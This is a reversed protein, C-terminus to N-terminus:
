KLGESSEGGIEGVPDDARETPQGEEDDFLGDPAVVTVVGKALDISPVVDKTFPVYVTKLATKSKRGRDSKSLLAIEMLDGAGFDDVHVIEGMENGAPDDVRLGILDAIYFEDEEAAPLRDRPVYLRTGKLAQAQDRNDVGDIKAVIGAKAQGTITLNFTRSGDESDVPGYAGVGEPDQTFPKITVAGRVGHVGSIAGLCVRSPDVPPKQGKM